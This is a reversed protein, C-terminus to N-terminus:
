AGVALGSCYVLRRYRARLTAAGLGLEDLAGPRLNQVLVDAEGIMELLWAAADADKLDVTISRKNANVALFGPSVGKRFPPGWRRADDGEPREVKIVDAGLHALIEGAVPGALNQGIEVVRIGDLTM